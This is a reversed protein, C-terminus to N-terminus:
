RAGSVVALAQEATDVLHVAAAMPRNVALADLVPWAPLVRRWHDHGVLVLPPPEGHVREYYLRTAAQFIEQVTGAEGGLVVLGANCRALLGDERLANSFYKAVAEAFVNPPEHGYFWTPIGLSRLGGGRASAAREDLRTRARFGLHTWAAIDPRYSPVDALTALARRLEGRSPAHAGLNAAEMAGPGGGTAVLYGAEALGFGLRAAAAYVSSGREASHGGMVGVVRRGQVAEDLADTISDDHIARLLTVYADTGSRRQRTWAYARGDLTGAYGDPGDLGEYLEDPTYLRSRYVDLPAQPDAPFVIAGHTVLHITLTPSLKGGLVVLGALDARATLEAEVSTLDLDQFRVGVLTHRAGLLTSLTELRDIEVLADHWVPTYPARSRARV